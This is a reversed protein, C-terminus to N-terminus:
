NQPLLTDFGAVGFQGLFTACGVIRAGAKLMRDVAASSVVGGVGIVVIDRIAPNTSEKLYLSFNYVNGLAIAHIAEGGLGGLAMPLALNADSSSTGQVQNSFLLASGVTNICTIFTFPNMPSVPSKCSFSAIISVVDKFCTAYLYPPLKLGITLTPDAYFADALVHLLPQMAPFNYAPPPADKINPCSTNLEIAVLTSLDVVSGAITASDKLRRRLEQISTVMEALENVDASTISIIIPKKSASCTSTTTTLLTYVWDLYSCLPHPSYGYSNLTSTSSSTFVVQSVENALWSTLM